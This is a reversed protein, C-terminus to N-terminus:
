NNRRLETKLWARSYTWYRDATAPSIGLAKATQKITLGAFFRLKVVNAKQVDQKELKSLAIDLELLEEPRKAAPHHIAEFEVQQRDGGRKQAAKERARDILIRRMAEAAAGFFHGKDKWKETHGEDSGILKRYAEHVLDTAQLTYGPRESSLRSRALKRLEDYVVPLLETAAKKDGSEIAQLIKTVNSM